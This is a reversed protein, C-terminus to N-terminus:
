KTKLTGRSSSLLFTWIAKYGKLLYHELILAEFFRIIIQAVIILKSIANQTRWYKIYLFHQNTFSYYNALTPRVRRNLFRKLLSGGTATRDHYIIAGPVSVCYFGAKQLRYALDCDEKYMFFREDFYSGNEAVAQLASMRYLGAAGSPGIPVATVVADVGEGQNIDYFRLGNELGLGLSDIIRTKGNKKFDWKRIAPVASGARPNNELAAVMNEVAAPELITDPNVVLFYDARSAAARSILKNYAASFGLNADARLIAIDPYTRLTAINDNESEPTNDFAAIRLAPYTQAKLSKLFAGLYPATSGGYTIFGICVVPTGNM